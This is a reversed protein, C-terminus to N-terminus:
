RNLRTSDVVDKMVSIKKDIQYELMKAEFLSKWLETGKEASQSASNAARTEISHAKHRVRRMRSVRQAFSRHSDAM